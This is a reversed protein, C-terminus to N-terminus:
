QQYLKMILETKTSVGMKNKINDIYHEVTRCSLGLQVAIEKATKANALLMLCETERKSFYTGGLELGPLASPNKKHTSPKLLGLNAMKELSSSLSHIGLVITCGLIGIINNDQGYWPLVTTLCQFNPGYKKLIDEEIIKIQKSRMVDRHTNIVRTASEETAVDFMTKGKAEQFSDFGCAILAPDNMTQVASQTDSLYVCFPQNLLDSVSLNIKEEDIIYDYHRAPKVLKIGNNCPIIQLESSTDLLYKYKKIM